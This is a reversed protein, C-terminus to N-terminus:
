AKGKLMLLLGILLPILSGAELMLVAQARGVIYVLLSLVFFAGCLLPLPAPPLAIFESRKTWLLWLVVAVIIPGHGQEDRVWIKNALDITTPGYLCVLGLMVLGGVLMDMRTRVPQTVAIEPPQTHSMMTDM